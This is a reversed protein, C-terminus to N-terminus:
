VQSINCMFEHNMHAISLHPKTLQRLHHNWQSYAESYLSCTRELARDKQDVVILMLDGTVPHSSCVCVNTNITCHM